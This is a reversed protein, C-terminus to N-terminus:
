KKFTIINIRRFLVEHNDRSKFLNSFPHKTLLKITVSDDNTFIATM